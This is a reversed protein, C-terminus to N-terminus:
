KYIISFINITHQFNEEAGRQDLRADPHQLTNRIDKMHKLYKLLLIDANSEKQLKELIKSWFKETNNGTLRQYYERVAAEISRMAIMASPTWQHLQLCSCSDQIDEKQINSM